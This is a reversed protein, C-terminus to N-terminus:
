GRKKAQRILETSRQTSITSFHIKTGNYEALYLDRSVRLEEALAPNGKMGLYTSVVGENMRGKNAISVDEAFSFVTAGIGSAYLLARSMLGADELPHSGDTFAVAGAQQMDYMEALEKGQLNHSIAGTPYVNVLNGKAKNLIYSIESKSHVPPITDPMLAVGTFGGAAAARCGTIMDEKTELGPEGFNVNLDFFGPALFKEKGKIIETGAGSGSIKKAVQAIKGDQILVDMTGTFNSGPFLIHVSQFLITKM